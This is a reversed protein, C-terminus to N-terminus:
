NPQVRYTIRRNTIVSGLKIEIDVRATDCHGYSDCVEYVFSDPGLYGVDPYYTFSGDPSLTLVGYLPAVVPAASVQLVDGPDNDIDNGVLGAAPISLLSGALGEYNEDFACPAYRVQIIDNPDLVPLCDEMPAIGLQYDGVTDITVQNMGLGRIEALGNAPFVVGPTLSYWVYEAASSIFEAQLTRTEGSACSGFPAPDVITTNVRSDAVSGLFDYPGAFDQLASTFSASSRSKSLVASFPSDCAYGPGFIARPDFGLETFNIGVEAMYGKLYNTAYGSTNNTGWPPGATSATNVHSLLAGPPVVIQGYGFNTGGDIDPGWIFSTAGGPSTGPSFTSRDIWLRVEVGTVGSGSYSFGIIMDGIVVVNGSADFQWATHGEDSGSNTFSSGSAQIESVFLEFDIFHNGSASMTSIVLNVWLDDLVDTGDRRMHVGTDVIDTKSPVTGPGIPWLTMPNDGNKGSLFTTQDDSDSSIQDRGFRTSYWIYGDKTGYNQISQYVDFAINNGAALQAAYNMTAATAEDVVGSGSIGNSFWDDTNAGSIPDGSYTDAEIGFNAGVGVQAQGALPLFLLLRFLFSTKISLFSRM